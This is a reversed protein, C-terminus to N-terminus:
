GFIIFIIVFTASVAVPTGFIGNTSWVLYGTLRELSYGRHSILDPMYPGALGYLLFFVAVLVIPLGISRRTGELVLAMLAIGVYFDTESPGSIGRELIQDSAFAFVLYVGIASIVGFFILGLGQKVPKGADRNYALAFCILLLGILHVGRQIYASQPGTAATYLHFAALSLGLGWIAVTGPSVPLGGKSVSNQHIAASKLGPEKVSM